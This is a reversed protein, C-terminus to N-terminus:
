FKYGLGVRVTNVDTDISSTFRVYEWEARLFLCSMLMVDVGLGASYGYIFHSNMADTQTLNFPVNQFGPAALPNVQTGFINATRIINAQGM